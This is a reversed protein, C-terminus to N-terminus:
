AALARRVIEDVHLSAVDLFPYNPPKEAYFSSLDTGALLIAQAGGRDILDRAANEMLQMEPQSGRKGHQAIDAYARHVDDLVVPNLKVIARSAITGFVDSEMTARNGFVGVHDIGARALAPPILELVDVVPGRAVAAIEDIALHPAVATIAVLDAGADFLGNAISGLYSGLGVKDGASVCALVIGVDAHSLVLHLRRDRANFHQLIRDYYFIGARFALGGILGIKKAGQAREDYIM